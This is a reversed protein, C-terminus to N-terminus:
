ASAATAARLRLLVLATAATIVVDSAVCWDCVAGIVHLQVYVLYASFAFAALAVVAQALRALETRLCATVLLVVFAALGLAAVPIGLIESYRSSQVTECGDTACVLKTGTHRVYLLYATLGIGVAALVGIALRLRRETL